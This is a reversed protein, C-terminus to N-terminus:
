QSKMRKRRLVLVITVCAILIATASLIILELTSYANISGSANTSASGPLSHGVELSANASSRYGASDIIVLTATYNGPSLYEHSVNLSHSSNGDGFSWTATYPPEGGVVTGTFSVNLPARGVMTSTHAAVDLTPFVTVNATIPVRNGDRDSVNGAVLYHGPDVYIHSAQIGFGLEGDGFSWNADYPQVGGKALARFSVNLPAEGIAPSVLAAASLPTSVTLLVYEQITGGNTDTVNLSISYNGSQNFTTSANETDFQTGNPLKWYWTFPATGGIPLARFQVLLPAPGYSPTLSANVGLERNVQISLALLLRTGNPGSISANATYSGLADYSHNVRMGYALANDGFSWTINPMLNSIPLTSNANFQIPLHVDGPVPTASVKSSLLYYAWTDNFFISGTAGGFLLTYNDAGDYTVMAFSRPSPSDEAPTSV